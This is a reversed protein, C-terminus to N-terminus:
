SETPPSDVGYREFGNLRKRPPMRRTGERSTACVTLASRHTPTGRSGHSAHRSTTGCRPCTLRRV